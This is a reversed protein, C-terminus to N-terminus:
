AAAAESVFAECRPCWLLACDRTLFRLRWSSQHFIRCFTSM